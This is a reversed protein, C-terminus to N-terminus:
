LIYDTGIMQIDKFEDLNQNITYSILAKIEEALKVYGIATPHWVNYAGHTTLESHINLDLLYMDNSAKVIERIKNNMAKYNENYSPAYSPIITSMFIKIGKNNERLKNAINNIAVEYNALIIDLTNTESIYGIDNIGLHIIAFDYGSYNLATGTPEKWFWENNVWDGWNNNSDLSTAYWTPATTGAIGANTIDLSTLRKLIAPYSCGAKNFTGTGGSHDLTGETVSDGICIGRTFAQIENGKYDIPSFSGDEYESNATASFIFNSTYENGGWTRTEFGYIGTKNFTIWEVWGGFSTIYRGPRTCICLVTSYDTYYGVSQLIQTFGPQVAVAIMSGDYMSLERTLHEETVEFNINLSTNTGNTVFVHSGVLNIEGEPIDGLRVYMKHGSGNLVWENAEDNTNGNYTYEYETTIIGPEAIGLNAKVQAQQELTLSQPTLTLTNDKDAKIEDIFSLNNIATVGDGIKIRAYTYNEDADYIVFEGIKPIFNTAKSWNAEIDHKHIIRSAIKKEFAM